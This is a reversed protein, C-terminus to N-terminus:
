GKKYADGRPYIGTIIIEKSGKEYSFLIRYPPVKLRYQHKTGSMKAIDGDLVKLGNIAEELKDYTKSDCKSLYKSAQKKIVIDM